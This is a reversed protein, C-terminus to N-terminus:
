GAAAPTADEGPNVDAEPIVVIARRVGGPSIFYSPKKAQLKTALFNSIAGLTADSPFTIRVTRTNGKATKLETPITIKKGGGRTNLQNPLAFKNNADTASAVPTNDALDVYLDRGTSKRTIIKYGAAATAGAGADAAINFYDAVDGRIAVTGTRGSGLKISTYIYTRKKSATEEATTGAKAM